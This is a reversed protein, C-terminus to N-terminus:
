RRCELEATTHGQINFIRPVGYDHMRQLHAIMSWGGLLCVAYVRGFGSCRSFVGSFNVPFSCLGDCYHLTGWIRWGSQNAGSARTATPSATSASSTKAGTAKNTPNAFVIVSITPSVIPTTTSTYNGYRGGASSTLASAGPGSGTSLIGSCSGDVCANFACQFDSICEAQFNGCVPSLMLNVAYCQAGKACPTSSPICVAGLPLTGTPSTPSQLPTPMTTSSTAASSHFGSCFGSVCTNFACQDGSTCISQFNGCRPTLM